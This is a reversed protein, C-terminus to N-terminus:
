TKCNHYQANLNLNKKTLWRIIKIKQRSVPFMPLSAIPRRYQSTVQHIPRPKPFAFYLSISPSFMLLLITYNYAPLLSKTHVLVHRNWTNIKISPKKLQSHQAPHLDMGCSGRLRCRAGSIGASGALAAVHVDTLLSGVADSESIVNTQFCCARHLLRYMRTRPNTRDAHRWRRTTALRHEAAALGGTETPTWRKNPILEAGTFASVTALARRRTGAVREADLSTM